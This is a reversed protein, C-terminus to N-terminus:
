PLPTGKLPELAGPTRSSRVADIIRNRIEMSSVTVLLPRIKKEETQGLRRVSCICEKETDKDVIEVIKEAKERENTASLFDKEPVGLMVLNLSREKADIREIVSQQKQVVVTLKTLGDQLTANKGQLSRVEAEAADVRDLPALLMRNENYIEAVEDSIKKMWSDLNKQEPLESLIEEIVTKNVSKLRDKKHKCLSILDELSKPASSM